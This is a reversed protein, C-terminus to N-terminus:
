VPIGHLEFRRRLNDAVMRLHEPSKTPVFRWAVIQSAENM